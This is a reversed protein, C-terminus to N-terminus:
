KLVVSVLIKANLFLDDAETYQSVSSFLIDGSGVTQRFSIFGILKRYLYVTEREKFFLQIWGAYM